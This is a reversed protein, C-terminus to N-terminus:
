KVFKIVEAGTADEIRIFYMGRGFRSLDIRAPAAERNQNLQGRYLNRGQVDYISLALPGSKHKNYVFLEDQVPNPFVSYSGPNISETKRISVRLSDYARRFNPVGYGRQVDPNQYLHSVSEILGRMELPKMDPLEQMLCAAMGALIPTALSAGSLTGVSGNPGIVAASVGLAAVNPKLVNSANPGRGTSSAAVKATNVSGVTLASDADGPTLIYQWTSNGENGASAVVLIGKGAATNAARAAPTTHGDLEEYIYNDATDDFVNYGLSTSIIDAGVSDAREMAAVLNDIEILQESALADTAYLAYDADPATGVHSEPLYSALCSLIQTGHAGYDFVHATDYIFNWTDVLRNNVFMSDFASLNNVASFGVDLVAILKGAGTNGKGHLYEGECLHIQDWAAGYFAQDFATPREQLNEATDAAPMAHLGTSFWGVKQVSAVFSITDLTQIRSSDELLIVCNNLWKSSCHLIGSTLELCSDIYAGVVPLDTSDIAIGFRTRRELARQSLYAQPNSLQHISPEKDTFTIRYATQPTQAQSNFSGLICLLLPFLIALKKMVNDKLINLPWLAKSPVAAINKEEKGTKFYSPAVPGPYLYV